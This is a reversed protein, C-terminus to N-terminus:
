NYKTSQVYIMEEPVDKIIVMHPSIINEVGPEATNKKMPCSIKYM